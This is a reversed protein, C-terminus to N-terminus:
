LELTLYLRESVADHYQNDITGNNIFGLRKLTRQSAINDHRTTAYITKLKLETRAFDILSLSAETAYGKRQFQPSIFYGIEAKKTEFDIHHIGGYGVFKNDEKTNIALRYHLRRNKVSDTMKASNICLELFMQAANEQQPDLRVFYFNPQESLNQLANLDRTNFDRLKLHETNFCLTM